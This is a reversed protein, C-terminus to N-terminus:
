RRNLRLSAAIAPRSEREVNAATGFLAVDLSVRPGFNLGIGATPQWKDRGYYGGGRVDIVGLRYEVGGRFSDGNFGHAYEALASFRDGRHGGRVRYDVPLEVEVDGIPVDPGEVLEDQGIFLNGFFRSERVVDNWRIRNGIGNISFGAEWGDVIAAIGLDVARGRGSTSTDRGILLPTPALPNITLLGSGDTDLRVRTDINEYRFGLLHHYDVALLVFRTSSGDVAYRGRYGGTIAAAFQGVTQNNLSLQTNPFYVNTASALTDIIRQDLDFATRLALYPGAGIFVGHNTGERDGAVRITGGWTPAALGEAAPQRAPVFGRYANLDRSLAANGIDVVLRQGADSDSSDRGIIYHFPSASYEIARILDFEDSGPRFIDLNRVVQILGIPLAISRYPRQEDLIRDAIDSSGASGMAIKRADLEWNQAAAPVGALLVLVLVVGKRVM